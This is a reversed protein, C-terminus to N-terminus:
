LTCLVLGILWYATVIGSGHLETWHGFGLFETLPNQQLLFLVSLAFVLYWRRKGWWAWSMSSHGQEHAAHTTRSEAALPAGIMFVSGWRWGLPSMLQIFLFWPSVWAIPSTKRFYGHDSAQVMLIGLLMGLFLSALGLSLVPYETLWRPASAWVSQNLSSNFLNASQYKILDVWGRSLDRARESGLVISPIAAGFAFSGALYGSFFQQGRRETRRTAATFFPLSMLIWPGKIWPMLGAIFGSIFTLRGLLAAACLGLGFIFLEPQGNDLTEIIGKWGMLLGVLLLFVSRHTSYSTAWMLAIAFLLLNMTSFWFWAQYANRPLLKSVALLGPSFQYAEPDKPDYIAAPDAGQRLKETAKFTALFDKPIRLEQLM